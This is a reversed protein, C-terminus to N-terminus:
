RIVQQAFWLCHSGLPTIRGPLAPHGNVYGRSRDILGAVLLRNMHESVSHARGGTLRAVQKPILPGSAAIVELIRVRAPLRLEKHVLRLRVDGAPGLLATM